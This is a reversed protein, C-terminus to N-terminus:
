KLPLTWFWPCDGLLPSAAHEGLHRYTEWAAEDFARAPESTNPFEPHSAAYQEVDLGEDGTLTAKLYLLLSCRQPGTEYVVRFLAAHKSSARAARAGAAATRMLEEPSGLRARQEAPILGNAALRDLEETPFPEITAAFDVRVRRALEGLEVLRVGPDDSADALIIRPLRRRILEYGGLGEFLRGDDLNWYREWPGRFTATWESLLLSQTTFARPIIRLFRQFFTLDSSEERPVGSVGSDWWYGTRLNAVGHLLATGLQTAQGPGPGAPIGSIAVWESLPLVEARTSPAGTADVLPHETGALHGLPVMAAPSVRRESTAPPTGLAAHWDRGISMALPSVTLRDGPFGRDARPPGPRVTQNVTLNILHLPGGAEHPRYDRISAVDDGPQVETVDHSAEDIASASGIL